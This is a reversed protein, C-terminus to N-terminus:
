HSRKNVPYLNKLQYILQDPSQKKTAYFNIEGIDLKWDGPFLAGPNRKTISITVKQFKKSKLCTAQSSSLVSELRDWSVEPCDKKVFRKEVIDIFSSSNGPAADKIGATVYLTLVEYVPPEIQKLKTSQDGTNRQMNETVNILVKLNIEYLYIPSIEDKLVQNVKLLLSPEERLFGKIIDPFSQKDLIVSYNKASNISFERKNGADDRYNINLLQHTQKSFGACFFGTIRGIDFFGYAKVPNSQYVVATKWYLGGNVGNGSSLAIENKSQGCPTVSNESKATHTYFLTLIAFLLSTFSRYGYKM